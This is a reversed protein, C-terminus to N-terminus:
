EFKCLGREENEGADREMGTKNKEELVCMKVM